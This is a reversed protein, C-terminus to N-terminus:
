LKKAAVNGEIVIRGHGADPDCSSEEGQGDECGLGLLRGVDLWGYFGLERGEDFGVFVKMAVGLERVV